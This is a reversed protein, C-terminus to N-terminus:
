APLPALGEPATVPLSCVTGRCVYAAPAGAVPERDALWSPDVGAPAATGPATVLVADEPALRRRAAIALARTRADDPAGVVVACSLGREAALAARALTPYAAPVRELVFAHTRLVREATRRLDDRGSLAAARLLGLAALGPSHPTAGDHDSRPRHPLPEGDAPTLFFDNEEPDFFRAQIEDAVALALAPLSPDGAARHLDLLAALWAALDDLFAPVKAQGDAFVRWWRGGPAALRERVFAATRAADALLEEDDLV